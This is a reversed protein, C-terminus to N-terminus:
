HHVSSVRCSYVSVYVICLSPDITTAVCNSLTVLWMTLWNSMMFTHSELIWLPVPSGLCWFNCETCTQAVAGPGAGFNQIQCSRVMISAHHAITAVEPTVLITLLSDHFAVILIVYDMTSLVYHVTSLCYYIAVLSYEFTFVLYYCALLLQHCRLSYM